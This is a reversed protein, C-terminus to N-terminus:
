TDEGPTGRRGARRGIWALLLGLLAWPVTPSGAATCVCKKYVVDASDDDDDAGGCPDGAPGDLCDSTDHEVEWPGGYAGMDGRTGDPDSWADDPDGADICPSSEALSYDDADADLFLPDAQLNGVDGVVDELEGYQESVVDGMANNWLATYTVQLTPNAPEWPLTYIGEAGLGDAVIGNVLTARTGLQLYLNAGRGGSGDLNCRNGVLAVNSLLADVPKGESPEGLAYIGGGHIGAANGEVLVRHLHPYSGKGIIIGGGNMTLATNDRVEVDILTPDSECLYIGGGCSDAVNGRVTVRQLLPYSHYKIKIGGGFYAHNGEILLDTLTPCSYTIHIGAGPPEKMIEHTEAGTITFGSLRAGPGEGHVFSVAPVGPPPDIVTAEIGGSSYVHVERGCFDLAEEYTGPGVEVRDGDSAAEIAEQISTFEGSGDLAVVLTREARAPVASLGFAMGLFVAWIRFAVPRIAAGPLRPRALRGHGRSLHSTARDMRISVM